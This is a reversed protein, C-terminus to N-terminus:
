TRNRFLPPLGQKALWDELIFKLKQCHYTLFDIFQKFSPLDESTSSNQWERATVADLIYLLILILLIYIFLDDWHSTPRKLAQLAHVHRITGDKILCLKYANEDNMSPLEMIAKLHNQTIIRINDYCDKLLGWAIEYNAASIELSSIINKADGALSARLYQLKQIDNLSANTHVLSQFTDLFPFWEDYRGSFTPINLKPLPIQASFEPNDSARSVSPSAAIQNRHLNLLERIKASLAYFKEQFMMRCDAESVNLFEMKTQISDYSSWFTELKEGRVELQAAIESTINVAKLNNVYNRICYCSTEIVDRQDRLANLEKQKSSMNFQFGFSLLM